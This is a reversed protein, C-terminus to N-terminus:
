KQCKLCYHTGRGGLRIKKIPNKCKPCALGERGYVKLYNIMKGKSGDTRVYNDATTGGQKIAFQLLKPIIKYLRTIEALSLSGARRTPRIGAEYLSEDAYINGLGSIKEQDMLLQKIRKQQHKKIIKKFNDLTYEPDFPELGYKQRAVDREINTAYKVWGFKRIDNFYLTSNDTFEIIIHSFKNPLVGLAGIPHGGSVKKGLADVYVLQGTMKLHVLLNHDGGLDIDILKGRRSVGQIVKRKSKAILVDASPKASGGYNVIIKKITKNKIKKNLESVITQVEPLEPMFFILYFAPSLAPM